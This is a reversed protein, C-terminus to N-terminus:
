MFIAQVNWTGATPKLFVGGMAKGVGKLLGKPGEHKLGDRPLTGLGTIGFYFGDRLEQAYTLINPGM